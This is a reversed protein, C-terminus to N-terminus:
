QSLRGADLKLLRAANGGLIRRRQAETLQAGQVRGLQAAFDRIPADSGFLVRDSGLKNVAYEVMGSFPQSGSTDVWVNEFGQIDLVGRMGCATLHAMVIQARPHREALHAIDSPDSEHACKGVTKYWAHHLLFVGRETVKKLIPDLRADRANVEYELKVGRLGADLCRDLEALLFRAPLTPNLFCLGYLRDPRSRVLALTADNIQRIGEEDPYPWFRGLICLANIGARDAAALMRAATEGPTGILSRKAPVAPPHVHIDIIM